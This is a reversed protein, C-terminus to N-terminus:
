SIPGTKPLKRLTVLTRNIKDKAKGNWAFFLTTGDDLM